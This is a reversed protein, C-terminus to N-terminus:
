EGQAGVNVVLRDVRGGIVVAELAPVLQRGCCELRKRKLWWSRGGPPTDPSVSHSRAAPYLQRLRRTSDGIGLGRSTEWRDGTVHASGLFVGRPDDCGTGSGAGLGLTSFGMSLGASPYELLCVNPDYVLAGGAASRYVFDERGHGLAREASAMSARSQNSIADSPIHWRGIRTIKRGVAVQRAYASVAAATGRQSPNLEPDRPSDPAAGAVGASSALVLVLVALTTATRAHTTARWDDTRTRSM